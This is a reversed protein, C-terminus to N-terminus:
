EAIKDKLRRYEEKAIDGSKWDLYLSDSADNYQKIQKEAQKLALTLRKNERNIVPANNIREVDASM